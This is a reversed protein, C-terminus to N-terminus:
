NIVAGALRRILAGIPSGVMRGTPVMSPTVPIVTQVDETVHRGGAADRAVASECAKAGQDEKSWRENPAFTPM